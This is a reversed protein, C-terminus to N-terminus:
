VGSFDSSGDISEDLRVSGDCSALVLGATWNLRHLMETVLDYAVVRDGIASLLVGESRAPFFEM